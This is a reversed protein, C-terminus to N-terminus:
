FNSLWQNEDRKGSFSYNDKQETTHRLQYIEFSSLKTTSATTKEHLDLSGFHRLSLNVFKSFYLWFKFSFNNKM